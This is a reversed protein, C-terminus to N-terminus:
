ETAWSSVDKAPSFNYIKGLALRKSHNLNDLVIVKTRDSAEGNVRYTFTATILGLSGGNIRGYNRSVVVNFETPHSSDKSLNPSASCDYNITRWGKAKTGAADSAWIGFATEPSVFTGDTRIQFAFPGAIGNHQNTGEETTLTINKVQIEPSGGNYLNFRLVDGLFQFELKEGEINDAVAVMPMTYPAISNAVYSQESPISALYYGTLPANFILGVAAAPGCDVAGTYMAVYKGTGPIPGVPTFTAETTSAGATLNYTAYSFDIGHTTGGSYLESYRTIYIKDGTTWVLKNYRSGDSVLETKTDDGDVLEPMAITISKPSSIEQDPTVKSCAALVALAMLLYVKKM